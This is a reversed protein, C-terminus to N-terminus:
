KGYWIDYLEHQTQKFQDGHGWAGRDKSLFSPVHALEHLVVGESPKNLRMAIEGRIGPHITGHRRKTTRGQTVRIKPWGKTETILDAMMQADKIDIIAQYADGAGVCSSDGILKM